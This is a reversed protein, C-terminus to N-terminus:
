VRSITPNNKGYYNVMFFLLSLTIVNAGPLALKLSYYSTTLECKLCDFVVELDFRVESLPKSIKV